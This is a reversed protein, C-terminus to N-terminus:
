LNMQVKLLSLTIFQQQFDHDVVFSVYKEKLFSIYIGVNQSLKRIKDFM